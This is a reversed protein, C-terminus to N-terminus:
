IKKKGKLTVISAGLINTLEKVELLLLSISEKMNRTEGLLGLWFKTENGSKLAHTLFNAFDKKSSAAQAEIINAGISTTSKILQKALVQTIYDKPAKDLMNITRIALYYARTKTDPTKSLNNNM